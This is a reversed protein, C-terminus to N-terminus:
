AALDNAAVDDVDRTFVACVKTAIRSNAKMADMAVFIAEPSPCAVEDDCRWTCNASREM